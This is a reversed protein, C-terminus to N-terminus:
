CDYTRHVLLQLQIIGFTCSALFFVLNVMHQTDVYLSKDFALISRSAKSSLFGERQRADASYWKLSVVM